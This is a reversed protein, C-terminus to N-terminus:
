PLDPHLMTLAAPGHVCLLPNPCAGSAQVRDVRLWPQVHPVAPWTGRADRAWGSEMAGGVQLFMDHSFGALPLGPISVFEEALVEECAGTRDLKFVVRHGTPPPLPRAHTNNLPHCTAPEPIPQLLPSLPLSSSPGFIHLALALKLCLWLRPARCASGLVTAPLLGLGVRRPCAYALLDSDETVVLDVDGRRALYAM